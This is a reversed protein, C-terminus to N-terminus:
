DNEGAGIQLFGETKKDIIAVWDDMRLDKPIEYGARNLANRLNEKSLEIRDIQKKIEEHQWQFFLLKISWNVFRIKYLAREM